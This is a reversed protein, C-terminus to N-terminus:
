SVSNRDTRRMEEDIEPLLRTKREKSADPDRLWLSVHSPQM